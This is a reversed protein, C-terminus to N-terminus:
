RRRSMLDRNLLATLMFELQRDSLHLRLRRFRSMTLAVVCSWRIGGRPPSPRAEFREPRTCELWGVTHPLERAEAANGQGM